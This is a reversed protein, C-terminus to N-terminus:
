QPTLIPSQTDLKSLEAYQAIWRCLDSVFITRCLKGNIKGRKIGLIREAAANIFTIKFEKDLTIICESLSDLIELPLNTNM